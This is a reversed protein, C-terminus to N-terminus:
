AHPILRVIAQLISEYIRVVLYVAFIASYVTLGIVMFLGWKDLGRIKAHLRRHLPMTHATDAPFLLHEYRTLVLRDIAITALAAVLMSGGAFFLRADPPFGMAAGLLYSLTAVGTVILFGKM